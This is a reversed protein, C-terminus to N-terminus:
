RKIRISKFPKRNLKLIAEQVDSFSELVRSDNMSFFNQNIRHRYLYPVFNAIDSPEVKDRGDVLASLKALKKAYEHARYNPGGFFNKGDMQMANIKQVASMMLDISADDWLSTAIANQVYQSNLKPFPFHTAPSFDGFLLFRLEEERLNEFYLSMDFRDYIAQSVDYTGVFEEDNQSVMVYFDSFRYTEGEITFKKQALFEILADQVRASARNFEDIFLFQLEKKEKVLSEQKKKLLVLLDSPFMDSYMTIKESAFGSKLFECLTTKGMGTGGQLMIKSNADCLIAFTMMDKVKEQGVLVKDLSGRVYLFTQQIMEKEQRSLVRKGIM